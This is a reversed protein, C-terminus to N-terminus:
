DALGGEASPPGREARNLSVVNQLVLVKVDRRTNTKWIAMESLPPWGGGDAWSRTEADGHKDQEAGETREYKLRPVLATVDTNSALDTHQM